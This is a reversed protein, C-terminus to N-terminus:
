SGGGKKEPQIKYPGPPAEISDFDDQITKLQEETIKEITYEMIGKIYVKKGDETIVGLDVLGLFEGWDFTVKLNFSSKGTMKKIEESAPGFDGYELKPNLEFCDHPDRIDLNDGDVKWHEFVHDNVKYYGDLLRSDSMNVSNYRRLQTDAYRGHICIHVTYM